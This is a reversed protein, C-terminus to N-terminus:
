LMPNRATVAHCVRPGGAKQKSETIGDFVAATGQLVRGDGPCTAPRRSLTFQVLPLDMSGWIRHALLWRGGRQGHPPIEPSIHRYFGDRWVLAQISGGAWDLRECGGGGGRGPGGM